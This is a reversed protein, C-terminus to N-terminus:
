KKTVPIDVVGLADSDDPVRSKSPLPLGSGFWLLIRPKFLTYYDGHFSVPLSLEIGIHSADDNAYFGLIWTQLLSDAPSPVPLGPLWMTANCRSSRGSVEGKPSRNTPQVDPDGAFENFNCPVVRLKKSVHKIACQNNSDDREWGRLPYTERLRRGTRAYATHSDFGIPDNRTCLARESIGYLVSNTLGDSDLDLEELADSIELPDAILEKM